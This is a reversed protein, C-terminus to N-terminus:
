FCVYLFIREILHMAATIVIVQPEMRITQIM